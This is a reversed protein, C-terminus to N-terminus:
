VENIFANGLVHDVHAHTLVLMVPKLGKEKIFEAFEKKESPSYCGPDVIICQKTDDSLIYTNEQFPNFTFKKIYMM